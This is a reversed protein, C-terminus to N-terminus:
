LSHLVYPSGKSIGTSRLSKQDHNELGVQGHRGLLFRSLHCKLHISIEEQKDHWVDRRQKWGHTGAGCQSASVLFVHELVKHFRLFNTLKVNCAM